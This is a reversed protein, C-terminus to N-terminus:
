AGREFALNGFQREVAREVVAEIDEIAKATADGYVNVTLKLTPALTSSRSNNTVSGATVSPVTALGVLTSQVKDANDNVGQLTGEGIMRGIFRFEKSPSAIGLAKKVSAPLLDVLAKFKGLFASWSAKIGNWLGDVIDSGIKKITAGLGDQALSKILDDAYKFANKVRDIAGAITDVVWMFAGAFSGMIRGGVFAMIGGVVGLVKGVKGWAVSLGSPGSASATTKFTLTDIVTSVKSLSSYAADSKAILETFFDKAGAYGKEFAVSAREIGAAIKEVDIKGLANGIDGAVKSLVGILRKGTASEPNLADTLKVMLAQVPALAANSDLAAAWRAPISELNESLGNWTGSQKKAFAGLKTGTQNTLATLAINQAAGVSLTGDKLVLAAGKADTKLRKALEALFTERKIGLKGFKELTDEGAKGKADLETFSELIQDLSKKPNMAKIDLSGQLIAMADSTSHGQQTLNILAETLPKPDTGLFNSLGHVQALAADAKKTDGLISTLTNRADQKAGMADIGLKAFAVGASALSSVASAGFGVFRDGIGRLAGTLVEGFLKSARGTKSMTKEVTHMAKDVSKLSKEVAKGPATVKDAVALQWTLDAAM